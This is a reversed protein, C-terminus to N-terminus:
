FKVTWGFCEYTDVVLFGRTTYGRAECNAQDDIVFSKDDTCFQDKGAWARGDEYDVAHAYYYRERLESAIVIACQGGEITWWGESIRAGNRVYGVAVGITSSNSNCVKLGEVESKLFRTAVWAVGGSPLRVKTWQGSHELAVVATGRELTTVVPFDDGPGQHASTDDVKISFDSAQAAGATLLLLGLVAGRVFGLM